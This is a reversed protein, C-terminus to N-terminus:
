PLRDLGGTGGAEVGTSAGGQGNAPASEPAPQGSAGNHDLREDHLPASEQDRTGGRSLVHRPLSKIAVLRGDGTGPQRAPVANLRTATRAEYRASSRGSRSRSTARRLASVDNVVIGLVKTEMSRLEALAAGVSDDRLDSVSAVLVVYDAADLIRRSETSLVSACDVVVPEGSESLARLVPEAVISMVDMPHRKSTGAAIFELRDIATERVLLAAGDATNALGPEVPEDFLEHLHAHRLNGDILRVPVNISALSWAIGAAIVSKGRGNRASTVAIVTPEVRVLPEIANRLQRFSESFPTAPANLLEFLNRGRGRRLAPVSPVEALEPLDYLRRIESSLDLSRKLRSAVIASGIAMLIGLVIGGIILPIPKPSTPSSPVSAPQLVSFVLASGSASEQQALTTAAQTAWLAAVDPRHSQASINILGTGFNNSATLKVPTSAAEPPLQRTLAARFPDSEVRQVYSPILFNAISVGNGNPDTGPAVSVVATATYSKAPLVGAATAPVVCLGFVLLALLWHRRLAVRVGTPEM